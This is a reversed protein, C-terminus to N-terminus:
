TENSDDSHVGAESDQRCLRHMQLAGYSAQGDFSLTGEPNFKATSLDVIALVASGGDLLHPAKLSDPNVIGSFLAPRVRSSQLNMPTDTSEAELGRPGHDDPTGVSRSPMALIEQVNRQPVKNQGKSQNVAPKDPGTLAALNVKVAMDERRPVTHSDQDPVRPSSMAEGPGSDVAPGERPLDQDVHQDSYTSKSVVDMPKMQVDDDFSILTGRIAQSPKFAPVSPRLKSKAVQAKKMKSTVKRHTDSDSEFSILSGQSEPEVPSPVKEDSNNVPPEKEMPPTNGERTLDAAGVAVDKALDVLAEQRPSNDVVHQGMTKPATPAALHQPVPPVGAVSQKNVPPYPNRANSSFSSAHSGVPKGDSTFQMSKEWPPRKGTSDRIQMKNAPHRRPPIVHYKEMADYIDTDVQCLDVSLAPRNGRDAWQQAERVLLRAKNLKFWADREAM